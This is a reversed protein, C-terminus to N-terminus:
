FFGRGFNVEKEVLRNLSDILMTYDRQKSVPDEKYFTLLTKKLSAPQWNFAKNYISVGFDYQGNAMEKPPIVLNPPTTLRCGSSGKTKRENVCKHMFEGMWEMNLKFENRLPTPLKGWLYKYEETHWDIGDVGQGVIPEDRLDGAPAPEQIRITLEKSNVSSLEDDEVVLAGKRPVKKAKLGVDFAVVKDRASGIALDHISVPRQILRCTNTGEDKFVVTESYKLQRIKRMLPDVTTHYITAADVAFQADDLDNMQKICEKIKDIHQYLLTQSEELEDKKEPNDVTKNWQDLYSEYVSTLETIYAKNDDFNELATETTILGFLLKNKDNILNNKADNIDRRIGDMLNDLHDVMSVHLEIHLNCPDAINGCVSRFTRYSETKDNPPHYTVSFLTGQKSPRKCNVCKPMLKMYEARKERKSLAPNHILKRKHAAMGDEFKEKLRFYEHLAVKVNPLENDSM